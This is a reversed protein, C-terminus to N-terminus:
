DCKVSRPQWEPPAFISKLVEAVTHSKQIYTIIKWYEFANVKLPNHTGINDTLGYIVKETEAEYTGFLQDWICLIAGYNKDIYRPNSGHHVRHLSPTNLIRDLFGLCGIKQTHIWVQYLGLIQVAILIVLPHFGMLALSIYFIWAIFDETWALRLAVSLNFDTSSHHVSHHAWFLRIRHEATHQWYYLFDAILLALLIMWPNIPISFPSFVTFLSLGIFMVIGAVTSSLIEYVTGIVFNTATEKYDRRKQAVLDIVVEVIIFIIMLGAFQEIPRLLWNLQSELIEINM